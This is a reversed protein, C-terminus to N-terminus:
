SNSPWVIRGLSKMKGASHLAKFPSDWPRCGLESDETLRAQRTCQRHRLPCPGQHLSSWKKLPIQRKADWSLPCRGASLGKAWCQPEPGRSAPTLCYRLRCLSGPKLSLVACARTVEMLEDIFQNRTEPTELITLADPGRAIGEPAPHLSCLPFFLLNWKYIFKMSKM